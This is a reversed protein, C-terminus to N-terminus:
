YHLGDRVSYGGVGGVGWVCVCQKHQVESESGDAFVVMEM